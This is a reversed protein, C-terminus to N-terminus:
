SDNQMKVPSNSAKLDHNSAAEESLLKLFDAYEALISDGQYMEAVKQKAEAFEAKRGTFYLERISSALNAASTAKMSYDAASASLMHHAKQPDTNMISMCSDISKFTESSPYYSEDDGFDHHSNCQCLLGLLLIFILTVKSNM